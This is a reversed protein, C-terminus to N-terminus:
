LTRGHVQSYIQKQSETKIMLLIQIYILWIVGSLFDKIEIVTLNLKNVKNQDFM